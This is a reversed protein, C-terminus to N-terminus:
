DRLRFYSNLVSNWPTFPCVQVAFGGARDLGEGNEAYAKLLHLPNEAFHVLSREDFSRYYPSLDSLVLSINIFHGSSPM